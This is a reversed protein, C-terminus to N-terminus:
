QWRGIYISKEIATSMSTATACRRCGHDSGGMDAGEMEMHGVSRPPRRQPKSLMNEVSQTRVKGREILGKLSKINNKPRYRFCV